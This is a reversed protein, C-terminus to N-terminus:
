SRCARATLAVSQSPAERHDPAMVAPELWQGPQSASEVTGAARLARRPGFSAVQRWVLSVSAEVAATRAPAACSQNQNVCGHAHGDGFSPRMGIRHRTLGPEGYEVAAVEALDLSADLTSPQPGPRCDATIQQAALDSDILTAATRDAVDRQLATIARRLSLVRENAGNLIDRRKIRM